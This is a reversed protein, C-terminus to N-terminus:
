VGGWPCGLGVPGWVRGAAVELSGEALERRLGTMAERKRRVPKRKGSM